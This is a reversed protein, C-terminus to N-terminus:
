AFPCEHRPSLDEVDVAIFGILENLSTAAAKQYSVVPIIKGYTVTM